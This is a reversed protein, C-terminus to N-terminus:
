LASYIYDTDKLFTTSSTLYKIRPFPILNTAIKRQNTNLSGGFRYASTYEVM